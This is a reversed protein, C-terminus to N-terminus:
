FIQVDVDRSAFEDDNGADGAGPLRTEREVGQEGLALAAVHLRQRGVRPLKEALEFLGIDIVDISQRWSDGDILAADGAIRSGGNSRYGLDVVMESKEKGPDAIRV